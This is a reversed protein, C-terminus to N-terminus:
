ISSHTITYAKCVQLFPSPSRAKTSPVMASWSKHPPVSERYRVPNTERQWHRALQLNRRRYASESAPCRRGGSKPPLRTTGRGHLIWLITTYSQRCNPFNIKVGISLLTVGRWNNKNSKPHKQKWLPIVTAQMWSDPWHATATDPPASCTTDWLHQTFTTPTGM